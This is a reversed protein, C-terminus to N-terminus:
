PRHSRAYETLARLNEHPTDRTVECGAGVVYRAGAQRHCAEIAAYIEDPSGERLVRVPNINGLLVQDTGMQARGEEVPAPYDLDVIECGLRGMGDLLKRTNGCIHLRVPVGLAHVGDVLRKEAAWVQQEYVRPGVLSAAADGIGIIDAGARVQAEAFSLEMEVVFDFLDSVFGPDDGFDLMLRNIGRLDAGQACPGEIWGEVSRRDGVQRKLAEVGSIRDSMRRGAWPDPPRLGLLAGKEALLSNAEDLAPPSDPSYIVSAGLDAAERAPDSIVSVYDIDFLEAVKLQGEVLLRHDTAYALYTVGLLDANFQMTIPMLPLSDPVRGEIMASIRERGNM